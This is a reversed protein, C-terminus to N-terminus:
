KIKFSTGISKTIGQEVMQQSLTSRMVEANHQKKQLSESVNRALQEQMMKLQQQELKFMEQKQVFAQIQKETM